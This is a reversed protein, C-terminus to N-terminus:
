DLTLEIAGDEGLKDSIIIGLSMKAYSSRFGVCKLNFVFIIQVYM